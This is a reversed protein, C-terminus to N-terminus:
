TGQESKTGFATIVKAVAAEALRKKNAAKTYREVERLSAHGTISAIEHPSAGADALRRAAAKRLGHPCCHPLGAAVCAKKFWLYFGNSSYPRGLSSVIFTMHGSKTADIIAALDPHVPMEIEAGTKQQIIKIIGGRIHQRGMPIVDCSRQGTYLLLAEALRERTGLPFKAEFTAIEEEIWSHHGESKIRPAEIGLAANQVLLGDTVGRKLLLRMVIIFMRKATVTEIKSALQRIHRAELTAVRKDGHQERIREIVRRYERQSGPALDRWEQSAYYHVILDAMTGAQVRDIGIPMSEGTLAAEYAAMFSPSWPLGPLRVRAYGRRDFYWYGGGRRDRKFHCYKPPRRM